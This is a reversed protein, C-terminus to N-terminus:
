RKEPKKRFKFWWVGAGIALVVPVAICLETGGEASPAYIEVNQEISTSKWEGSKDRYTITVDMPYSGPAMADVRVKFQVTSFDDNDLSGIYRETSIDLMQLVESEMGVEVNDIGYSGLNSVLVSITHEGGMTLPAPKAELYVGVEVDSSITLPINVSQTKDVNEEEWTITAPVLNLGPSYDAFVVASVTASSGAAISGVELENEYKLRLNEDDFTIRVDELTETGDNAVELTLTGEQRTIVNSKQLFTVDLREKKITIRVYEIGTHEIGLEDEYTISVPLDIPGDEANRSDLTMGLEESGTIQSVFLENTGFLAVDSSDGIKVRVNKAIGGKNEITMVVQDIGGILQTDTTLTFEPADVVTIPIAISNTVYERRDTREEYGSFRIEVLYIGSSADSSVKFPLAVSTMAGASLDVITSPGSISVEPPSFITMGITSIQYTTPNSVAMSIVGSAGSRFSEQSVSWDPVAVGAFVGGFLMGLVLLIKLFRM